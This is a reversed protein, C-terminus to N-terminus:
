GSKAGPAAALFTRVSEILMDFQQQADKHIIGDRQFVGNKIADNTEKGREDRKYKDRIDDRGLLFATADSASCAFEALTADFNRKRTPTTFPWV